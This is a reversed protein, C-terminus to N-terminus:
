YTSSPPNHGPNPQCPQNRAECHLTSTSSTNSNARRLATKPPHHLWFGSIEPELLTSFTSRERRRGWANRNKEPHTPRSASTRPELLAPPTPIRRQRGWSEHYKRSWQAYAQEERTAIIGAIMTNCTGSAKKETCM